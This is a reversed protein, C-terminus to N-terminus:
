PKTAYVEVWPAMKAGVRGGLTIARLVGKVTREEWKAWGRTWSDAIPVLTDGYVRRTRFGAGELLMALARLTFGHRYPFTLLNNHALLARALPATPGDFLTRVRAYFAGNPVRIALVGGERLLSHSARLARRPDPLQDFCNWIAVADFVRDPAISELEANTVSLGHERAFANTSENIDIGEFRWGEERAASLFAGVYSGVELGRGASGLERTLRRAERRYSRHQNEFLSELVTRAPSEAAYVDHLEEERERPHRYVVGCDTCRVVSVPPRQSFAVRDTLHEPPTDPRLRRGHFEWLVEVERRVEEPGAILRVRGHNCVPCAM